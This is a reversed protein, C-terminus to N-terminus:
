LLSAILIGASAINSRLRIPSNRIQSQQTNRDIRGSLGTMGSVMPAYRRQNNSNTAYEERHLDLKQVWDSDPIGSSAREEKGGIINM